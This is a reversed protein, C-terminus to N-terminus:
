ATPIPLDNKRWAQLANDSHLARQNCIIYNLKQGQRASCISMGAYEFSTKRAPDLMMSFSPGSSLCVSYRQKLLSEKSICGKHILTFKPLVKFYKDLDQVALETTKLEVLQKRYKQDINRYVVDSLDRKARNLGEMVTELSGQAM